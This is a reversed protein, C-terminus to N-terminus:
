HQIIQKSDSIVKILPTSPGVPHSGIDVNVIVDANEIQQFERILRFHAQPTKEHESREKTPTRSHFSRANM